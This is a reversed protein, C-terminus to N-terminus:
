RSLELSLVIHFICFETVRHETVPASVQPILPGCVKQGHRMAQM